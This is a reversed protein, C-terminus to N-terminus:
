RRQRRHLQRQKPLSKNTRPSPWITCLMIAGVTILSKAFVSTNNEAAGHSALGPITWSGPGSCIMRCRRLKADTAIGCERDRKKMM